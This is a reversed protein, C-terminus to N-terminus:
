LYLKRLKFIREVQQKVLNERNLNLRFFESLEYEDYDGFILRARCIYYIGVTIALEDLDTASLVTLALTLAHDYEEKVLRTLDGLTHIKLFFLQKLYSEPSIDMLEAGSISCIDTLLDQMVKSEHLFATLTHLDLSLQDAKDERISRRINIAYDNLQHKLKEFTEDAIELLGAVRSFERRMSLPISYESKYGLDHEIEAWAHQLVTRFQIEFTYKTLKDPYSDSKPLSCIFHLSLYGFATPEMLKRKDTSLNEDVDLVEKVLAAIQDVQESFYCIIRFGILDHLSNVSPYKDEKIKMKGIVSDMTKIRHAIQMVKIGGNDLTKELLEAVIREIELYDPLSKEYETVQIEKFLDVITKEQAPM